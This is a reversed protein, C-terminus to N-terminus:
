DDIRELHSSQLALGASVCPQDKVAVETTLIRTLRKLLYKALAAHLAGHTAFAVTPVIGAALRQKFREFDFPQMTLTEFRATLSFIFDESPKRTCGPAAGNSVSSYFGPRIRVSSPESPM